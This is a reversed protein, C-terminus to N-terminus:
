ERNVFRWHVEPAFNSAITVSRLHRNWEPRQLLRHLEDDLKAFAVAKRLLSAARAISPDAVDNGNAAELSWFGDHQMHFFPLAFTSNTESGFLLDWYGNFLEEIHLTPEIRNERMPHQEYLDMVCLLLLPKHPAKHLSTATWRGPISDRHLAQLKRIYIESNTMESDVSTRVASARMSSIYTM